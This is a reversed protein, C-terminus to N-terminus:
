AAVQEQEGDRGGNDPAERGLCKRRYNELRDKRDSDDEDARLELGREFSFFPLFQVLLDFSVCLSFALRDEHIARALLVAIGKSALILSPQESRDAPRKEPSYRDAQGLEM